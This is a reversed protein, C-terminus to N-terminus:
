ALQKRDANDEALKRAQSLRDAACSFNNSRACSEAADLHDRLEMKNQMEMRDLMEMKEMMETKESMAQKESQRKNRSSAGWVTAVAYLLVLVLILFCSVTRKM